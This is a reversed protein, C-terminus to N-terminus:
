AMLNYVYPAPFSFDLNNESIYKQKTSMRKLMSMYVYYWIHQIISHKLFLTWLSYNWTINTSLPLTAITVAKEANSDKLYKVLTWFIKKPFHQFKCAKQIQSIKKPLSNEITLVVRTQSRLSISEYEWCLHRSSKLRRLSVANQPYFLMLILLLLENILIM